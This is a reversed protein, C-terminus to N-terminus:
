YAIHFLGRRILSHMAWHKHLVIGIKNRSIHMDGITSQLTHTRFDLAPSLSAMASVSSIDGTSPALPRDFGIPDQSTEATVSMLLNNTSSDPFGTSPACSKLPSREFHSTDLTVLICLINKLADDNLPSMELHSTDLTVLICRMNNSADNNLPSMELHSTDLTVLMSPMSAPTNDKLPSMELHSTDLTSSM